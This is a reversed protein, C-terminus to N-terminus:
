GAAYRRALAGLLETIGLATEEPISGMGCSPTLITREEIRDRDVGLGALRAQREKLKVFLGEASECAVKGVATPVIGWALFKREDRALFKEIHRPYLMISDCYDYADFNIIDANTDALISWDTSGCCHIGVLAGMEHIKDTVENLMSVVNERSLNVYASGYSVLYPEDIFLVVTEALESLFHAQWAAKAVCAKLIADALQEHYLILKKDQDTLTLGLSVPGILQGKVANLRGKKKVAELFAYLGSAYAKSISFRDWRGALFSEYVSQIDTFIDGATDFHIRGAAKDIVVCPLGESFQVYMNEFFGMKPLQPWAPLAPFNDLILDIAKVPDTFPWSGITTPTGKAFM